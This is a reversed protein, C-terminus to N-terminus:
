LHELDEAVLPEIIREDISDKKDCFLVKFCERGEIMAKELKLHEFSRLCVHLYGKVLRWSGIQSFNLKDFILV